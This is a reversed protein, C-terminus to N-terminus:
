TGLPLSRQARLVFVSQLTPSKVLSLLAALDFIDIQRHEGMAAAGFSPSGASASTLGVRSTTGTPEMETMDLDGASTVRVMRSMRRQRRRNCLLSGVVLATLAAVAVAVAAIAPWTQVLWCLKLTVNMYLVTHLRLSSAPARSAYGLELASVLFHDSCHGTVLADLRFVEDAPLPLRHGMSLLGVLISSYCTSYTVSRVLALQGDHHPGRRRWGRRGFCAERLPHRLFLTGPRKRAKGLGDWTTRQARPRM